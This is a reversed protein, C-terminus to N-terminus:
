QYKLVAGLRTYVLIVELFVDREVSLPFWFLSSALPSPLIDPRSKAIRRM